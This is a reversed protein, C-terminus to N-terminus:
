EFRGADDAAVAVDRKSGAALGQRTASVRLPLPIWAMAASRM